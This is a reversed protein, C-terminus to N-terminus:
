NLGTDARAVGGARDKGKRKLMEKRAVELRALTYDRDHEGRIARSCREFLTLLRGTRADEIQLGKARNIARVPFRGPRGGPFGNAIAGAPANTAGTGNGNEGNLADAGDGKRKLGTGGANPNGDEGLDIKGDAVLTGARGGSGNQPDGLTGGASATNFDNVAKSALKYNAEFDTLAQDLSKGGFANADAQYAAAMQAKIEPLNDPLTITPSSCNPGSCGCTAAGAKACLDGVTIGGPLAGGIFGPSAALNGGAAGGGAAQEEGRTQEETKSNNQMAMMGGAIEAVGMVIWIVGSYDSNAVKAVGIGVTVAGIIPLITAIAKGKQADGNGGDGAVGIQGCLLSVM